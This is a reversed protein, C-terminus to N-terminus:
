PGFAECPEVSRHVTVQNEGACVREPSRSASLRKDASLERKGRRCTTWRTNRDVLSARRGHASVAGSFGM